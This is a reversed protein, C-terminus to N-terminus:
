GYPLNLFFKQNLSDRSRGLPRIHITGHNEFTIFYTLNNFVSVIMIRLDTL